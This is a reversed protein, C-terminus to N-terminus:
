ILGGEPLPAFKQAPPVPLNLLRIPHFTRWGDGPPLVPLLAGPNGVVMPQGFNIGALTTAAATAAKVDTWVFNALQQAFGYCTKGASCALLEIPVAPEIDNGQRFGWEILKRGFESGTFSGYDTLITDETGHGVITLVRADALSPIEGLWHVTERRAAALANAGRFIVLDNEILYRSTLAIIM